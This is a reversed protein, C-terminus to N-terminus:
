IKNEFGSSCKMMRGSTQQVFGLLLSISSPVYDVTAGVEHPGLPELGGAEGVIQAMPEYRIDAGEIISLRALTLVWLNTASCCRRFIVLENLEEKYVFLM